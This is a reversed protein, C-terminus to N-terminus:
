LLLIVQVVLQALGVEPVAEVVQDEQIELTMLLLLVLMIDVVAV